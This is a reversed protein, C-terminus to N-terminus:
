GYADESKKLGIREIIADRLLELDEKLMVFHNQHIESFVRVSFDVEQFTVNYISEERNVMVGNGTLWIKKM